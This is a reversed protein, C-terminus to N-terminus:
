VELRNQIRLGEVPDRGNLAPLSLATEKGEPEANEIAGGDVGQAASQDGAGTWWRPNWYKDKDRESIVRHEILNDIREILSADTGSVSEVITKAKNLAVKSKDNDGILVYSLGLLYWVETDEADEQVLSKLINIALDYKSLEVLLRATVARFDYSPVISGKADSCLDITRQVLSLAEGKRNQSLRLDALAQVAEPSSPDYLLAKDLMQECLSESGAEQFCDVLYVKAISTLIGSMKEELVKRRKQAAKAAKGAETTAPALADYESVLVDYGKEFAEVAVKGHELQGLILYKIESEKPKLQISKIVLEKAGLYDGTELLVEAALDLAKTSEPDSELLKILLRLAKENDGYDALKRARALAREAERKRKQEREAPSDRQKHKDSQRSLWEIVGELFHVLVQLIWSAFQAVKSTMNHVVRHAPRGRPEGEDVLADM